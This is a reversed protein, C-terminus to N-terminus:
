QEQLDRWLRDIPNLAPSYPPMCLGVVHDPLVLSKATHGSGNDRLVIKLTDHDRPAVEKLCSQWNTPNLQPLELFFSEGTTPAVPGM